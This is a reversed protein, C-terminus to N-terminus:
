RANKRARGLSETRGRALASIQGHRRACVGASQRGEARHRDNQFHGRRDAEPASLFFDIQSGDYSQHCAFGASKLGTLGSAGLIKDWPIQPVPSPADPNPAPPPVHALVDFVTKANFWGYYLPADGFQAPRDAAFVANDSLPPVAGGTLRAAVPEVAKLSSGAILLSEFQGVVFEGPKEPKPERGLEQVPPRKPFVGAITGPLANSSLPVVSFSIGRITETHIPKGAETWKQRLAALNTKLLDSNGKADLLLLVGPAADDGGDWGSQTVAFTLQGQPLNTFDGLRVGLDHELPAVLKENWKAMFKDHFPKMAPDNWFLWQPSQRAAARLATFDPATVLLLTDAPLLKEAPPIAAGPGASEPSRPRSFM